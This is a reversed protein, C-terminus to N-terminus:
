KLLVHSLGYRRIQKLRKEAVLEINLATKQANLLHITIYVPPWAISNHTSTIKQPTSAKTSTLKMTYKEITM